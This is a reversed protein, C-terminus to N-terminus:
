ENENNQMMWRDVLAGHLCIKGISCSSFCKRNIELLLAFATFSFYITYLNKKFLGSSFLLEWRFLEHEFTNVVNLPTYGEETEKQSRNSGVSEVTKSLFLFQEECFELGHSEIAELEPWSCLWAVALITFQRNGSIAIHQLKMLYEKVQFIAIQNLAPCNSIDLCELISTTKMTQKLHHNSLQTSALNLSSLYRFARRPIVCYLKGTGSLGLEKWDKETLRNWNIVSWWQFCAGADRALASLNLFRFVYVLIM